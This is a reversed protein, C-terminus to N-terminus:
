NYNTNGIDQLNTMDSDARSSVISQKEFEESLDIVSNNSSSNTNNRSFEDQQRMGWLAQSNQAEVFSILNLKQFM